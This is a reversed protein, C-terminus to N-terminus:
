LSLLYPGASRWFGGTRTPSALPKPHKTVGALSATVDFAPKTVLLEVLQRAERTGALILIKPKRM